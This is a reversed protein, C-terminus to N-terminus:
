DKSTLSTELDNIRKEAIECYEKSIDIGVYNRNLIKAAVCTSGSGVMPDFVIDGEKVQKHKEYTREIFNENSFMQVYEPDTPGWDFNTPVLFDSFYNKLNNLVVNRHDERM